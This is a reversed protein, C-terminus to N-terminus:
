GRKGVLRQRLSSAMREVLQREEAKLPPWLGVAVVFLGSSAIAALVAPVQMLVMVNGLGIACAAFAIIRINLRWDVRIRHGRARLHRFIIALAVLLGLFNAVVLSWLGLQQILPIALVIASSRVINTASYIRAEELLKVIIDMVSNVSALIAVAFFGLFLPTLNDYKGDTLWAFLTNGAVAFIVFPVVLVVLNARFLLNASAIVGDFGKGDDFRSNLVPRFLGVFM